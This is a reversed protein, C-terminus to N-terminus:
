LETGICAEYSSTDVFELPLTKVEDVITMRLHYKVRYFRKGAKNKFERFRDYSVGSLDANLSCIRHM